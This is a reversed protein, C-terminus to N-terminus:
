MWPVKYILFFLYIGRRRRQYIRNINCFEIKYICDLANERKPKRFLNEVAEVEKLRDRIFAIGKIPLTQEFFVKLEEMCDESPFLNITARM